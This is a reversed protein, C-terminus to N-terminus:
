SYSTCADNQGILVKHNLVIVGRASAGIRFRRRISNRRTCTTALTPVALRTADDGNSRVGRSPKLELCDGGSLVSM